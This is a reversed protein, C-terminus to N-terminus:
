VCVTSYTSFVYVCMPEHSNGSYGRNWKQTKLIHLIVVLHNFIFVKADREERDRYHGNVTHLPIVDLKELQGGLPGSVDLVKRNADEAVGLRGHSM